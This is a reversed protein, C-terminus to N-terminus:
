HMVEFEEANGISLYTQTMAGQIQAVKGLLVHHFHHEIVEMDPGHLGM